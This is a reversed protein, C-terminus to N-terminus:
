PRCMSRAAARGCSPATPQGALALGTEVVNQINAPSLRLERETDQLQQALKELQERLKREFKLM